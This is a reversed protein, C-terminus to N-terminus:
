QGRDQAADIWDMDGGNKRELSWRYRSKGIAIKGEPSRV